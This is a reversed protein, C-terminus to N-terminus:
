FRDLFGCDIRGGLKPMPYALKEFEDIRVLRGVFEDLGDFGVDLIAVTTGKGTHGTAHWAPVGLLDLGESTTATPRRSAPARGDAWWDDVIRNAPHAGEGAPTAPVATLASAALLLATVVGSRAILATSRRVDAVTGAPRCAIPGREM